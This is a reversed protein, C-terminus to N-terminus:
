RRASAAATLRPKWSLTISGGTPLAHWRAAFDDLRGLIREVLPSKLLEPDTGALWAPLGSRHGARVDWLAACLSALSESRSMDAIESPSPRRRAERRAYRRREAPDVAAFINRRGAAIQGFVGDPLGAEVEVLFHVADHPLYEHYGPGQRTALEPGRERSVTLLYRRGAAKTFTVDM